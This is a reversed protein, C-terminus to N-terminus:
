DGFLDKKKGGVLTQLHTFAKLVKDAERCFLYDDSWRYQGPEGDRKKKTFTTMEAAICNNGCSFSVGLDVGRDQGRDFESLAISVHRLDFETRIAFETFEMTDRKQITVMARDFSIKDMTKLSVAVGGQAGECRETIYQTTEAFDPGDALAASAPLLFAALVSVRSRMKM